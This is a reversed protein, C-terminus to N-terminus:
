QRVSPRRECRLSRVCAGMFCTARRRHRGRRARSSAPWCPPVAQKARADAAYLDTLGPEPALDYLEPWWYPGDILVIEAPRRYRGVHSRGCARPSDRRCVPPAAGAAQRRADACAPRNIEWERHAPAAPGGGRVASRRRAAQAAAYDTGALRPAVACLAQRPGERAATRIHRSSRTMAEHRRTRISRTVTPRSSSHPEQAAPQPRHKGRRSCKCSEARHSRALRQYHTIVIMARRPRLPPRLVPQVTKSSRSADIDLGSRDRRALRSNPGRATGSCFRTERRRAAPCAVQGPCAPTLFFCTEHDISLKGASVRVWRV